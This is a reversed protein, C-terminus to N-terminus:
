MRRERDCELAPETRRRVGHEVRPRLGILDFLPPIRVANREDRARDVKTNAALEREDIATVARRECAHITDDLTWGQEHEIRHTGDPRHTEFTIAAGRAHGDRDAARAGLM